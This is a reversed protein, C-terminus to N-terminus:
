ARRDYTLDINAIRIKDGPRLATSRIAAGNVFTGNTSGLDEILLRRGRTLIQAHNWSVAKDKLVVDNEDGAGIRTTPRRLAVAQGALPGSHFVLRARRGLTRNLALAALALVAVVLGAIAVYRGYPSRIYPYTATATDTATGLRVEIRHTEGDMKSPFRLLYSDQVQRLVRGFARGIDITSATRYFTGGTAEGLERLTEFGRSGFRSYGVSFILVPPRSEDGRSSLLIQKLTRLSGEDKGDSFVIVLSRRPLDSRERILSVARHVGDYFVTQLSKPDAELANIRTRTHSRAADFSAIVDVGGAFAVIAIRDQARLQGLYAAAATRAQKLPEGAMTRSTDIALVSTIGRGSESFSEIQIKEPDINRGNDLIELQGPVLRDLSEQERSLARVSLEVMRGGDPSPLVEDLHIRELDRVGRDGREGSATHVPLAAFWLLGIQAFILAKM